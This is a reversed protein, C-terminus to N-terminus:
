SDPDLGSGQNPKLPDAVTDAFPPDGAFERLSLQGLLAAQVAREDAAHFPAFAIHGNQVEALDRFGKSYFRCLQQVFIALWIDFPREHCFHWM